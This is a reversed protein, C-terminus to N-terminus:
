QSYRPVPIVLSQSALLLPPGFSCCNRPRPAVSVGSASVVQGPFAVERGLLSLDSSTPPATSHSESNAIFKRRQQAWHSKSADVEGEVGFIKSSTQGGPHQPFGNM